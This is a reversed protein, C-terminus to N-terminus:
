GKNGRLWRRIKSFLGEPEWKSRTYIKWVVWHTGCETCRGVAGHPYSYPSPMDCDHEEKHPLYVIEGSM